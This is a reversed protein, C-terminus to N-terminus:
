RSKVAPAVPPMLVRVKPQIEGLELPPPPSALKVETDQKLTVEMERVFTVHKDLLSRDEAPINKSVRVLDETVEDLVSGLSERDKLQGYLKEFVEYADSMPTLPQNPGAYSWRSWPDARNPVAVGMELSGFRTKTHEQSQLHNKLVQDISPGSAWGAPTEGGGQINGPVLEIGTLLCSMGRMHGDGDGRVKNNLGKLTLMRSKWPELPALISGLKFDAGTGQPWFNEPVTGNPSFFFIIRQRPAPPQQAHGFSPLFPLLAASAGARRLFDRRHIM